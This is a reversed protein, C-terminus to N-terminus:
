FAYEDLPEPIIINVPASACAEKLRKNERKRFTRQLHTLALCKVQNRQAMQILDKINAHGPIDQDFSYAEHIVLDANAYLRETQENFMGDGSYCVTNMGDDVKIAFNSASHSTPACTITFERFTIPNFEEAEIIDLRFAFRELIGSYGLRVVQLITETTGQPCLLTLPKERKGEWMRALLAPLGFYHDAHTHSIYIADLFSQNDNYRWLSHPISYGCDLLIPTESLIVHANNPLTEDFAEGVGLFLVKM